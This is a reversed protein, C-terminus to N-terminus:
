FCSFNICVRKTQKITTTTTTPISPAISQESAIPVAILQAYTSSPPAVVTENSVVSTPPAPQMVHFTPQETEESGTPLPVSATESTELTTPPPPPPPPLPALLPAEPLSVPPPM